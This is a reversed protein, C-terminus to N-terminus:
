KRRKLNYNYIETKGDQITIVAENKENIFVRPTQNRIRSLDESLEEIDDQMDVMDTKRLSEVMMFLYVVAASLLLFLIILGIIVYIM